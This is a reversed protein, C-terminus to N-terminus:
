GFIIAAANLLLQNEGNQSFVMNPIDVELVNIGQITIKLYSVAIMEKQEYAKAGEIDSTDIEKIIGRIEHEIVYPKGAEGLDAVLRRYVETGIQLYPNANPSLYTIECDMKEMGVDIEITGDMGGGRFDEVKRAIKPPKYKAQNIYSRTEDFVNYFKVHNQYAM